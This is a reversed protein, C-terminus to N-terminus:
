YGQYPKDYLTPETVQGLYHFMDVKVLDKPVGLKQAVEKKSYADCTDWQGDRCNKVLYRKKKPLRAQELEKKTVDFRGGYRRMDEVLVYDPGLSSKGVIRCRHGRLIVTKSM